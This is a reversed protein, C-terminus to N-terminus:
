QQDSIKVQLRKETINYGYTRPSIEANLTGKVPQGHTYKACFEIPISVANALVVDPRVITLSFKPLVYESVQITKMETQGDVKAKIFWTGQPPEESLQFEMQAIGVYAIVPVNKWQAVRTGTTDELWVDAIPELSPRLDPTVSLIRFRILQGPLYLEKDPQIFTIWPRAEVYVNQTNEITYSPLSLTGFRGEIKLQMMQSESVWPVYLPVSKSAEGKIKETQEWITVNSDIRMFKLTISGEDAVNFLNLHASVTVNGWLVKPLTLIYGNLPM